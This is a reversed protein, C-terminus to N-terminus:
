FGLMVGRCTITRACEYITRLGTGVEEGEKSRPTQLGKSVAAQLHSPPPELDLIAGNLTCAIVGREQQSAPPYARVSCLALCGRSVFCGLLSNNMFLPYKFFSHYDQNTPFGVLFRIERSQILSPRGILFCASMPLRVSISLTLCPVSKTYIIDRM